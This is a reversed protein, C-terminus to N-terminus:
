VLNNGIEDGWRKYESYIAFNSVSPLAMQNGTPPFFALNEAIKECLLINFYEDLQGLQFSDKFCIEVNLNRMGIFIRWLSSDLCSTCHFGGGFQILILCFNTESPSDSEFTNDIDLFYFTEKNPQRDLAPPWVRPDLRVWCQLIVCPYYSVTMPPDPTPGM